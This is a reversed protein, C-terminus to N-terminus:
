REETRRSQGPIGEETQARPTNSTGTGIALTRAVRFGVAYYRNDPTNWDRVASRLSVAIGNWSGGRHVRNSCARGSLWASGDAPANQYNPHYCDEVWELVNGEMDYLGFKNPPFSGVPATQKFDWQSGCGNCNAMAKGNLDIEDGWPYATTTGARTAYEYEAETLLRYPKGTIKSLWTVYQQADDWSVFIVPRQGRGWTADPPHQTCGNHGFCTDWEDFTLEFKSVAFPKAITVQHQPFVNTFAEKDTQPLGMQFTGPPVVIMDPCYDKGELRPTCERFSDGPKLAQEASGRLTHPWINAGLFPQETTYWRWREAIYLQNMWGVLGLIIGVLMTYLAANLVRSRRRAAIEAQRSAAIFTRTEATEPPAYSPRFAMWAEAQDLVPPRLLLGGARGGEIWRRAAEGFETHRRIWGIDTQLAAGLKDASAEFRAPDDFFIFNLRRLAEPVASDEVRRCVIPAFRKNLSSAHVVEKLAVDSKVADPSLVFVVTDAGGILAEIRKWWDEFAYIEQRDILVEFGRAKLAAELKDAFVMDKRSYSIFIRAKTEARQAGVTDELCIAGAGSPQWSLERTAQSGIFRAFRNIALQAARAGSHIIPVLSRSKDRSHDCVLVANRLESEGARWHPCQAFWINDSTSIDSHQAVGQRWYRKFNLNSLTFCRARQDRKTLATGTDHASLVRL